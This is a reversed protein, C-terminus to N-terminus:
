IRLDIPWTENTFIQLFRSELESNESIAANVYKRLDAKGQLEFIKKFIQAQPHLTDENGSTPNRFGIDEIPVIDSLKDEILDNTAVLLRGRSLIRRDIYDYLFDLGKQLSVEKFDITSFKNMAELMFELKNQRPIANVLRGFVTRAAYIWGNIITDFDDHPIVRFQRRFHVIPKNFRNVEKLSYELDSLLNNKTLKKTISFDFHHVFIDKPPPFGNLINSNIKEKSPKVVDVSKVKLIKGQSIFRLDESEKEPEAIILLTKDRIGLHRQESNISFSSSFNVDELDRTNTISVQARNINISIADM